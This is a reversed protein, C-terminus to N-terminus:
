DYNFANEPLNLSSFDGNGVTLVKEAEILMSNADEIDLRKVTTIEGNGNVAKDKIEWLSDYFKRHEVCQVRAVESEAFGCPIISPVCDYVSIYYMGVKYDAYKVTHKQKYILLRCNDITDNEYCRHTLAKYKSHDYKPESRWEQGKMIVFSSTVAQGESFEIYAGYDGIVIRKFGKCILGGSKTYLKIDSGDVKDKLFDPLEEFYKKRVFESEAPKLPKYKGKEVLSSIFTKIDEYM